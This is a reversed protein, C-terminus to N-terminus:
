APGDGRAREAAAAIVAILGGYYLVNPVVRLAFGLDSLPEPLALIALDALAWLAYYLVVFRAVDRVWRARRLQPLWRLLALTLAAFMLEYVLFLVRAGPLRDPLAAVVGASALPVILTLGAARLLGQATLEIGGTATACLALLLFRFDGALVFLLQLRAQGDEPLLGIGPVPRTTLWADALSLAGLLLCYRRVSGARRTLCYALALGAALWLLGPHQIPSAYFLELPGPDTPPM